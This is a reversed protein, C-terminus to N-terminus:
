PKAGGQKNKETAQPGVSAAVVDKSIANTTAALPASAVSTGTPQASAIVSTPSPPQTTSVEAATPAPPNGKAELEAVRKELQEMRDLMWRERETLPAPAEIKPTAAPKAPREGKGDDESSAFVPVVSGCFVAVLMVSVLRKLEFVRM